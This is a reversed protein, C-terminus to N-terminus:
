KCEHPYSLLYSFSIISVTALFISILPPLSGNRKGSLEGKGCFKASVESDAATPRDTPITRKRVIVVSDTKHQKTQKVMAATQNHFTSEQLDHLVCQFCKIFFHLKSFITTPISRHLLNNKKSRLLM